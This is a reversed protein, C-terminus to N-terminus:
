EEVYYVNAWGNTGAGTTIEVLQNQALVPAAAYEFMSSVTANAATTAVSCSICHAFIVSNLKLATNFSGAASGFSNLTWGMIRWTKGAPVTGVTVTTSAGCNNSVVQVTKNLATQNFTVTAQSGNFQLAM